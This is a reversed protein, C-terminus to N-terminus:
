LDDDDEDDRPRRRSRPPPTDDDEESANRSRRRSRPPPADDEDDDEDRSRRRRPPPADDEDDDDEDRRRRRPPPADDDDDDEDRSRRKPAAKKSSGSSEGWVDEDSAGGGGIDIDPDGEGMWNVAILNFGCGKNGKQNYTYLTLLVSCEAGNVFAEEIDEADQRPDLKQGEMRISPQRFSKPNILYYLLDSDVQRGDDETYDFVANADRTLKGLNKSKMMASQEEKLIKYTEGHVDKDLMCRMRYRKSDEDGEEFSHPKLLHPHAMLVNDIRIQGDDYIKIFKGQKVINKAM